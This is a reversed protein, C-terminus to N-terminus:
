RPPKGALPRPNPPPLPPPLYALVAMVGRNGRYLRAEVLRVCTLEYYVIYFGIETSNKDDERIHGSGNVTKEKQPLKFNSREPCGNALQRRQKKHTMWKQEPAM